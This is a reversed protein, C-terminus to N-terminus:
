FYIYPARVIVGFIGRCQLHRLYFLSRKIGFIFAFIFLYIFQNVWDLITKM